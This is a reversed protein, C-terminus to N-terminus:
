FEAFEAAEYALARYEYFCVYLLGRPHVFTAFIVVYM